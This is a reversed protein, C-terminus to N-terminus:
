GVMAESLSQDWCRRLRRAACAAASAIVGASLIGGAGASAIAGALASAIAGALASAIASALASAIVDALASAIVDALASAIVGALTSGALKETRVVRVCIPPPPSESSSPISFRLGWAGSEWPVRLPVAGWSQRQAHLELVPETEDEATVTGPRLAGLEQRAGDDEIAM